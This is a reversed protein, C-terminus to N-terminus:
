VVLDAMITLRVAVAVEMLAVLDQLLQAVKLVLHAVRVVAVPV